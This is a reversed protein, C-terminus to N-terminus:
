IVFVTLICMYITPLVWDYTGNCSIPGNLADLEQATIHASTVGLLALFPLIFKM